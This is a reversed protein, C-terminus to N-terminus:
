WIVAVSRVCSADVFLDIDDDDGPAHLHAWHAGHDVVTAGTLTEDTDFVIDVTYGACDRRKSEAAAWDLAAELAYLM